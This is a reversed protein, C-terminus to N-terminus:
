TKSQVVFVYMGGPNRKEYSRNNIILLVTMCISFANIYSRKRTGLTDQFNRM